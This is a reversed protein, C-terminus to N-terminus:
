PCTEDTLRWSVILGDKIKVKIEKGGELMANIANDLVEDGTYEIDHRIKGQSDILCCHWGSKPDRRDELEINVLFYEDEM